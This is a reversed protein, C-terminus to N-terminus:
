NTGARFNQLRRFRGGPGGAGTGPSYLLIEASNEADTGIVVALGPIAPGISMSAAPIKAPVSEVCGNAIDQQQM